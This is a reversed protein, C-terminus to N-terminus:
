RFSRTAQAIEGQDLAAGTKAPRVGPVDWQVAPLSAAMADSLIM